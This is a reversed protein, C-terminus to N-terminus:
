NKNTVEKKQKYSLSLTQVAQRLDTGSKMAERLFKKENFFEKELYKFDKKFMGQTLYRAIIISSLSSPTVTIARGQTKLTNIMEGLALSGKEDLGLRFTKKM